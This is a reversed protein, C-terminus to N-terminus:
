TNNLVSTNVSYWCCSLVNDPQFYAIVLLWIKNNYILSGHYNSLKHKFVQDM